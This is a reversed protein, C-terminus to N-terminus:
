SYVKLAGFETVITTFLFPPQKKLPLCQREAFNRGAIVSTQIRIMSLLEQCVLESFTEDSNALYEKWMECASYIADILKFSFSFKKEAAHFRNHADIIQQAFDQPIHVQHVDTLYRCIVQSTDKPWTEGNKKALNLNRQFNHKSIAKPDTITHAHATNM